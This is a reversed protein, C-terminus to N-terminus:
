PALLWTMDGKPLVGSDTSYPFRTAAIIGQGSFSRFYLASGQPMSASCLRKFNKPVLVAVPDSLLVGHRITHSLYKGTRAAVSVRGTLATLNQSPRCLYENVNLAANGSLLSASRSRRGCDMAVQAQPGANARRAHRYARYGGGDRDGRVPPCVSPASLNFLGPCCLFGQGDARPKRM